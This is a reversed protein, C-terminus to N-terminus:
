SLECNMLDALSRVKLSRSADIFELVGFLILAINEKLSTLYVGTVVM